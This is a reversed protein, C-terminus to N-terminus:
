HPHTLILSARDRIDLKRYLNQIHKEVTRVACDLIMAIEPGTKGQQLWDLVERERRTLDPPTGVAERVTEGQWVLLAPSSMLVKPAPIIEALYAATLQSPDAGPAHTKLWTRAAEGIWPPCTPDPFAVVCWGSADWLASLGVLREKLWAARTEHTHRIRTATADAPPSGWSSAASEDGPESIDNMGTREGIEM